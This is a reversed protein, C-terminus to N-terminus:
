SILHVGQFSPFCARFYVCPMNVFLQL